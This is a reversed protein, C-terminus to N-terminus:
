TALYINISHGGVKEKAGCHGTWKKLELIAVTFRAQRDPYDALLHQAVHLALQALVNTPRQESFFQLIPSECQSFHRTRWVKNESHRCVKENTIARINAKDFVTPDQTM